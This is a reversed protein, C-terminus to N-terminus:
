SCTGDVAINIESTTPRYTVGDAEFIISIV